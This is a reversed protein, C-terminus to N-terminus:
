ENALKLLRDQEKYMIAKEEDTYDKYDLLHLIGHVILLKIEDDLSQNNEKANEEAKEFCIYIDGEPNDPSGLNFSIIDTIYDRQLYKQNIEVIEKNNVFTFEYSGSELKKLMLIKRIYTEIDFGFSVNEPLTIQISRFLM